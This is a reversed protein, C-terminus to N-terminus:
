PTMVLRFGVNGGRGNGKTRDNIFTRRTTRQNVVGGTRCGGRVVHDDGTTPGTPNDRPSSSYYATSYWDSTMEWVNGSMDYLGLGNPDKTGVPHNIKGSNDAFWTHNGVDNGGSYKEARGGSRAAYEWEAETPLRYRGGRSLSRANLRAIYEQVDSWSVNDVPCDDSACTSSASTDSGMVTRWQGQTVEYKGVYLGGVCVEHAPREESTADCDDDAAGMRYCGGAVYVMEMGTAADRFSGAPSVSKAASGAGACALHASLAVVVYRVSSTNATL